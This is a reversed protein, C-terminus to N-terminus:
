NKEQEEHIRVAEGMVFHTAAMEKWHQPIRSKWDPDTEPDLPIYEGDKKWEIDRCGVLLNDIFKVILPYNPESTVTRGRTVEKVANRRFYDEADQTPGKLILIPRPDEDVNLALKINTEPTLIKAM